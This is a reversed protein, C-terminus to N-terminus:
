RRALEPSTQTMTTYPNSLYPNSARYNQLLDSLSLFGAVMVTGPEVGTPSPMCQDSAVFGSFYIVVVAYWQLYGLYIAVCM